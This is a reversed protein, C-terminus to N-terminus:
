NPADPEFWAIFSTPLTIITAVVSVIITMTELKFYDGVLMIPATPERTYLFGSIGGLIGCLIMITAWYSYLHAKDRLQKEREDTIVLAEISNALNRTAFQLIFALVVSVALAAVAWYGVNFAALIIALLRLLNGFVTLVRRNHRLQLPRIPTPFPNKIPQAM